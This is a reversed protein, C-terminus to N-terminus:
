IALISFNHLLFAVIFTNAFFRLQFKINIEIEDRNTTLNPNRKMNEMKLNELTDTEYITKRSILILIEIFFVEKRKTEQCDQFISLINRVFIKKFLFIYFFEAQVYLTLNHLFTM